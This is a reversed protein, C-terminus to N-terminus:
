EFEVEECDELDESTMGFEKKVEEFSYTKTKNEIREIAAACDLADEIENMLEIYKDPSLLICEPENNKFVIKIGTQKVEDFIKKAQGKNFQSISVTNKLLTNMDMVANVESM